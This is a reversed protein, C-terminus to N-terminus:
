HVSYHSSTFHYPNKTLSKISFPKLRLWRSFKFHCWKQFFLPRQVFNYLRQDFSPNVLHSCDLSLFLNQIKALLFWDTTKQSFGNRVWKEKLTTEALRRDEGISFISILTRKVGTHQHVVDSFYFFIFNSGCFILCTFLILAISKGMAAEVFVFDRISGKHPRVKGLFNWSNGFKQYAM